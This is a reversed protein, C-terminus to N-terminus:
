GLIYEKIQHWDHMVRARSHRERTTAPDFLIADTAEPFGAAEFVEPLDDVFHSCDLAAIRDVKDKRCDAFHVRDAALAGGFLGHAALWDLAARRLDVGGPDAAAHRTKHSVIHVQHGAGECASFFEAVGPFPEAEDLRHGYAEAQIAQWAQEGTPGQARLADRVAEKGAEATGAPLGAALGLSRFLPGYAVITNDFDVGICM